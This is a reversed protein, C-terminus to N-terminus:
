SAKLKRALWAPHPHGAADLDAIAADVDYPVARLDVNLSSADDFTFLGWCAKGPQDFAFGVSGVNIARWRGLDRDMQLHTHGGIGLRGERDLLADAAEEDPTDPRLANSEDDGPIAHYGIVGGYGPVEWYLERGLRQRLYDYSEWDLQATNWNLMDDRPQLGALYSEFGTADEPPTIRFREGTVLYRDANGSIVAFSDKGHEAHRATELDRIRQVCQQPRPGFAALDGLVWIRDVPGAAEVDALAAELAVLNGHIDSLVALKMLWAGQQVTRKVTGISVCGRRRQRLLRTLSTPGIAEFIPYSGCVRYQNTYKKSDDVPFFHRQCRAM